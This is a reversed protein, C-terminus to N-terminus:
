ERELERRLWARATKLWRYAKRLSIGLVRASEEVSRGGFFRLEVLRVLDPDQEKLRDLAGDLEVLGMSREEFDLVLEDLEVREGVASRKQASKRRAHDVLINRMAIAALKLFSARSEWRLTPGNFLKAYAENVLATPQLTHTPSQSAMSKQALRHLEHYILDFIRDQAAQDGEGLREFLRRLHEEESM